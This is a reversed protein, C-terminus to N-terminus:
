LGEGWVLPCGYLSYLDRHVCAARRL